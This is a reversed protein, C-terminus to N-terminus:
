ATALAETRVTVDPVASEVPLTIVFARDGGIRRMTDIVTQAQDDGVVCEIRAKARVHRELKAGRYSGTMTPEPTSGSAESVTLSVFGMDLLDERIPEFKDPDVYAVVMKM